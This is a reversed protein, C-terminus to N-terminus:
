TVHCVDMVSPIDTRHKNDNLIIFMPQVRFRSGILKPLLIKRNIRIYFLADPMDFYFTTHVPEPNLPAEPRSCGIWDFRFSVHFNDSNKSLIVKQPLDM